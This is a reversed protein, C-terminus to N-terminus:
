STWAAGFNLQYTCDIHIGRDEMLRSLVRHVITAGVQVIDDGIIPVGARTFREAEPRGAIVGAPLERLGRRGQPGARRLLPRRGRLRGAPLLGQARRRPPPPRRGRRGPRRRVGRHDRRLLLGLGDLTPKRRVRRRALRRRVPHHQEREPPHGRRPRSRRPTSTSPPRPRSTARIHYGGLEVHMLGPVHDGPEADAYLARGRRRRRHGRRRGRRPKGM